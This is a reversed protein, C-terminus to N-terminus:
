GDRDLGFQGNQQALCTGQQLDSSSLGDVTNVAGEGSKNPFNSNQARLQGSEKEKKTKAGEKKSYKRRGNARCCFVNVIALLDDALDSEISGTSQHLVVLRCGKQELIWEILDTAIRALRDRYAVVVEDVTGCLAYGLITQLGQRKFNIGSGIDTIIEHNPYRDRMYDVQRKLDERQHSRSVRCYCIRRRHQPKEDEGINYESIDYRRHGSPLRISRLRGSDAYQRLTCQDIGLAKAAKHGSLM